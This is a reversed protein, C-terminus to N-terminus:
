RSQQGTSNFDRLLTILNQLNESPAPRRGMIWDMIDLDAEDLLRDFDAKQEETMSDFHREVFQRLLLDMELIGRRCRWLINSATRMAIM